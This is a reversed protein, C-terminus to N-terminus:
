RSFYGWCRQARVRVRQAGRPVVSARPEHVLGEEEVVWRDARREELLEERGCVEVGDLRGRRPDEAVEGNRGHDRTSPPGRSRGHASTHAM